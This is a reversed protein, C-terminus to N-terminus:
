GLCRAALELGQITQSGHWFLPRGDCLKWVERALGSAEMLEQVHKERFPFPEDPLIVRAPGHVALDEPELVPYGTDGGLLNKGGVAELLSSGYTSAGLAMWPKRWILCVFPVRELGLARERATAVAQEVRDASVEALQARGLREGLERILDASDDLTKPFSTWVDLGAARLSDADEVRNEEENMLVLDPALECIAELKPDKTGGVVPLNRVREAPEVCFKTVAVLSEGAGLQFALETLSPCLSVIRKPRERTM